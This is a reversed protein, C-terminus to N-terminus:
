IGPQVRLEFFARQRQGTRSDFGIGFDGDDGYGGIGSVLNSFQANRFQAPFTRDANGPARSRIQGLHPPL